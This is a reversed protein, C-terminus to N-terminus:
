EIAPTFGTISKYGSKMLEVVAERDSVRCRLSDHIPVVPIGAKVLRRLVESMIRSDHYQLRLGIDKTGFYKEIAAHRRTISEYLEDGKTGDPIGTIYGKAFIPKRPERAPLGECRQRLFAEYDARYQAMAAKVVPNGSRTICAKFSKIDESNMLVLSALKVTDRSFGNIRYPDDLLPNLEISEWAYLLCYHLSKFDPEVTAEGDILIRQREVKPMTQVSSGYFRGGLKLSRNFIRRCFPVLPKDLYTISHRLWLDNYNQVRRGLRRATQAATNDIQDFNADRGDECRMIILSSNKSLKVYAKAADLQVTLTNTPILWSCNAQFENAKGIVNVVLQETELYAIVRMLIHHPNGTNNRSYLLQTNTRAASLLNALLYDLCEEYKTSWRKLDFHRILYARLKMRHSEVLAKGGQSSLSWQVNITCPEPALFQGRYIHIQNQEVHLSRLNSAAEIAASDSLGKLLRYAAQNSQNVSPFSQQM